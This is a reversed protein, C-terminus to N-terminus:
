RHSSLLLFPKLTRREKEWKKYKLRCVWLPLFWPIVIFISRAKANSKKPFTFDKLRPVFFTIEQLLAEIGKGMSQLMPVYNEVQYM